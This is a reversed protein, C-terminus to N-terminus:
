FIVVLVWFLFAIASNAETSNSVEPVSCIGDPSKIALELLTTLVSSSFRSSIFVDRLFPIRASRVFINASFWFSISLSTAGKFLFRGIVAFTWSESESGSSTETDLVDIGTLVIVAVLELVVGTFLRLLQISYKKSLFCHVFHVLGWYRAAERLSYSFRKGGRGSFLSNQKKKDAFVLRERPRLYDELIAHKHQFNKLKKTVITKLMKSIQENELLGINKWSNM